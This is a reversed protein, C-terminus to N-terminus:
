HQESVGRGWAAAARVLSLAAEEWAKAREQAVAEEQEPTGEEPELEEIVATRYRCCWPDAACHPLQARQGWAGALPQSTWASASPLAPALLFYRPACPPCDAM